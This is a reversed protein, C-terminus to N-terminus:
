EDFMDFLSLQNEDPMNALAGLEDLRDILTTSLATRNRLEQKSLFEGDKRADVISRAVNDGLGDVARFPPILKNGDIVFDNWESKYLDITSFEFGRELMENCLELVGYINKDKNTAEDERVKDRIEQMKTKVAGLGKSMALLDFDNARHSFYACYYIIPHHVKFYAVRLAMLVYAAAHAKPFMYKIKLCSDIYWEPINKARMEEQWEDPIGKGKRVSEMIKFAMSADLGRHMLYVM